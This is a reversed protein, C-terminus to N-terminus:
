IKDYIIGDVNFDLLISHERGNVFDRVKPGADDNFIGFDIYDDGGRGVVWGVMAGAGSRPIGLNDYIENLFVHGRAQLMENAYAQQARLFAANYEPNKQWPACMPDFFRAYQSNGETGVRQHKVVKHSGDKKEVTEHVEEMGYRFHRDKEEGLDERVRARYQDFAKDVAAYAATLSANRKNLVVHSGTLLGISIVGLGVAPGYLKTVDLITRIKIVTLDKAHQKETYPTAGNDNSRSLLVNARETLMEGKELTESLKLTARCALVTAGVAGIVGGAFMIQPSAKQVHLMPRGLKKTIVSPIKLKKM